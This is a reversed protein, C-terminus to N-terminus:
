TCILDKLKDYAAHMTADTVYKPNAKKFMQALIEEPKNFKQTTRFEIIRQGITPGIGPLSLLEAYSATNINIKQMTATQRTIPVAPQIPAPISVATTPQVPVESQQISSLNQMNKIEALKAIYESRPLPETPLTLKPVETLRTPPNNNKSKQQMNKFITNGSYNTEVFEWLESVISLVNIQEEFHFWEIERHQAKIVQQQLVPQESQISQTTVPDITVNHQMNTIINQITITVNNTTSDTTVNETSDTTVNETTDITADDNENAVVNDRENSTVDITANDNENVVVNDHCNTIINDNEKTITEKIEESVIKTSEDESSDETTSIFKEETTNIFKDITETISLKEMAESLDYIKDNETGDDLMKQRKEIWTCVSLIQTQLMQLTNRFFVNKTTRPKDIVISENLIADITEDSIVSTAENTNNNKTEDLITDIPENLIADIMENSIVSTAESPKDIIISENTSNNRTESTVADIINIIETRSTRTFVGIEDDNFDANFTRDTNTGVSSKTSNSNQDSIQEDQDEDNTRNSLYKQQDHMYQAKSCYKQECIGIRTQRAYDFFLHLLRELRKNYSTNICFILKGGWEGEVRLFPNRETRGIKIWYNDNMQNNEDKPSFFGYVWGIGDSPTPPENMLKMIKKRTEIDNKQLLSILKPHGELKQM